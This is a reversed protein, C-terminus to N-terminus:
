DRPVLRKLEETWNQVVVFERPGGEATDIRIRLFRHGDPSVDYTRGAQSGSRARYPGRPVVVAPPGADFPAGGPVASVSVAMLAGDRAIYFIEDGSRSWLPQSGGDPSVLWRGRNVDPFPRVWVQRQGAEDSEYAMWRGDPSIEAGTESFTTQTLWSVSREGELSLLGVDQSEATSRGDTLLLRRGDPTFGSPRQASVTDTLRDLTGTGDSPQWYVNLPGGARSSAFAIRAGDPTWVPSLDLAPHFTLPTLARRAIDWIWIDLGEDRSDVAVRRGDPSLRPYVYPRSPAGLVEERGSRDVWVLTGPPTATTPGRDRFAGEPGARLYVLTGNESIGYNAAATNVAPNFARALGQVVAVPTGVVRRRDVDFAVAFLTDAHAFVLHGTSVYRADSGGQWVVTREKSSLSQVVIKAENWRGAGITTTISFLILEDGPLLHPGYMQEGAAAPVVVEPPGGDAAVRLIGRDEAFYIRGDDAWSAGFVSAAPGIVLPDGGAVRIRKLRGDVFAVSRGDPSFFPTSLLAETGPILRAELADMSRIYLGESTNYVFARGDPSVALVPRGTQGLFRDAPLVHTFRSLAPPSDGRLRSWFLLGAVPAACIAAAVLGVRLWSRRALTM